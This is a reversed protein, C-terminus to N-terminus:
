VFLIHNAAKKVREKKKKWLERNEIALDNFAECFTWSWYLVDDEM